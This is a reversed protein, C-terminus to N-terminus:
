SGLLLASNALTAGSPSPPDSSGALMHPPNCSSQAKTHLPFPCNRLAAYFTGEVARKLSEASCPFREGWSETSAVCSSTIESSIVVLSDCKCCFFVRQLYSYCPAIYIINGNNLIGRPQKPVM